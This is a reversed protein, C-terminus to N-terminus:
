PQKENIKDFRTNWYLNQEAEGFNKKQTTNWVQLWWYGCLWGCEQKKRPKPANSSKFLTTHQWYTIKIKVTM